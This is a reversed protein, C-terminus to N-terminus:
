TQSPTRPRRESWLQFEAPLTSAWTPSLAARQNLAENGIFHKSTVWCEVHDFLQTNEIL